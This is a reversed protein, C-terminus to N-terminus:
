LVESTMSNHMTVNLGAVNEAVLQFVAPSVNNAGTSV